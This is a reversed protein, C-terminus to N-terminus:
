ILEDMQHLMKEVRQRVQEREQRLAQLENAATESSEGHERQERALEEKLRAVEAEAAARTERERKVIEVARYVKQELAQFEDVSIPASTSM